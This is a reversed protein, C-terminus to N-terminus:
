GPRRVVVAPGGAQVRDIAEKALADAAHHEVILQSDLLLDVEAAGLEAALALARLVGTYEAVNNTRVGLYESISALPAASPHLADPASADADPM